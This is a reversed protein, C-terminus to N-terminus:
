GNCVEGQKLVFVSDGLAFPKDGLLRGLAFQELCPLPLKGGGQAIADKLAKELKATGGGVKRRLTREAATRLVRRVMMKDRAKGM